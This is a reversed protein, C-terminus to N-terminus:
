GTAQDLASDGNGATLAPLPLQCIKRAQAPKLGLMRLLDETMQDTAAADDREPQDHLLRGLSVTAGAIVAMALDLDQVKFRGARVAAELDRRARPALGVDSSLLALGSNLVVKSLEPELRHLRGTLRFSQAFVV